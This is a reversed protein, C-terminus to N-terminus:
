LSSSRFILVYRPSSTISNSPFFRCPIRLCQVFPITRKNTARIIAQPDEAVATGSALLVDVVVLADAGDAVDAGEGVETGDAATTGGGDLGVANGSAVLAGTASTFDDPVRLWPTASVPM